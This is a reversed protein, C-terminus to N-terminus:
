INLLSRVTWEHVCIHSWYKTKRNLAGNTMAQSKYLNWIRWPGRSCHCVSGTKRFLAKYIFQNFTKLNLTKRNKIYIKGYFFLFLRINLKDKEQKKEKISYMSYFFIGFLFIMNKLLFFKMHLAFFIKWNCSKKNQICRKLPFAFFM